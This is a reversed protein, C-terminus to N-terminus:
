ALLERDIGVVLSIVGRPYVCGQSAKLMMTGDFSTPTAIVSVGSTARQDPRKGNPISHVGVSGHYPLDPVVVIAASKTAPCVRTILM